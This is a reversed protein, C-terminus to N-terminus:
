LSLYTFPEHWVPYDFLRHEQHEMWQYTGFGSLMLVVLLVGGCVVAAIKEWISTQNSSLSAGCRDCRDNRIPVTAEKFDRVGISISAFNRRMKVM